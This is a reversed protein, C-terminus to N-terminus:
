PIEPGDDNAPDPYLRRTNRSVEDALAKLPHSALLMSYVGLAVHGWNGHQANHVAEVMHLGEFGVEFAFTALTAAYMRKNYPTETNQWAAKVHKLDRLAKHTKQVTEPLSLAATVGGAAVNFGFKLTRKASSPISRLRDQFSPKALYDQLDNQMIEAYVLLLDLESLIHHDEDYIDRLAVDLDTDDLPTEELSQRVHDQTIIGINELQPDRGSRLKRLNHPATMLKQELTNLIRRKGLAHKFDNVTFPKADPIIQKEEFEETIQGKPYTKHGDWIHKLMKIKTQTQGSLNYINAAIAGSLALAGIVLASPHQYAMLASPSSSLIECGIDEDLHHKRKLLRESARLLLTLRTTSIYIDGDKLFAFGMEPKDHLPHIDAEEDFGRGTGEWLKLLHEDDIDPGTELAAENRLVIKGILIRSFVILM